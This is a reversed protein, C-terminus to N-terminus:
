PMRLLRSRLEPPCGEESFDALITVLHPLGMGFGGLTLHEIGALIEESSRGSLSVRGKLARGGPIVKVGLRQALEEAMTAAETIEVDNWNPLPLNEVIAQTIHRDAFRRVWWDCVFSNLYALLALIKVEDTSGPNRVGHVYGKSYLTGQAEMVAAIMTRSNDRMSPYRYVIAPHGADVLAQTGKVVVGLGLVALREPHPIFRDFGTSQDIGFPVIHRAM